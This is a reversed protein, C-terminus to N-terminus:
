LGLPDRVLLLVIQDSIKQRGHEIRSFPKLIGDQISSHDIYPERTICAGRLCDVISSYQVQFEETEASIRSMIPEGTVVELTVSLTAELSAQTM